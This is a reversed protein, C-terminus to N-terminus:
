KKPYFLLICGVIFTILFIITFVIKNGKEGFLDVWISYMVSAKLGPFDKLVM